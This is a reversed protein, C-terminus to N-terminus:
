RANAGNERAIRHMEADLERQRYYNISAQTHHEAREQQAAEYIDQHTCDQVEESIPAFRERRNREERM